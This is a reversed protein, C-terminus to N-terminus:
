VNFSSEQFLDAQSRVFGGLIEKAVSNKLDDLSKESKRILEEVLRNIQNLVGTQVTLDVIEKIENSSIDSSRDFLNLRNQLIESEEKARLIAYPLSRNKLKEELELTLNISVQVDKLLEVIEGLCQGYTSLAKVERSTGNGVIAGIQLCTRLNIAEGEIKQLKDKSTNMVQSSKLNSSEVEAMKAWYKWFLSSITGRKRFDLRVENLITFAKASALGGIILAINTGYKGVTTPKLKRDMTKDIIDDWTRFSFNMLSMAIAIEQTAKPNGGVAQCSLNMMAPTFPDHWTKSTFDLIDVMKSLASDEILLRASKNATEGGYTELINQCQQLANM